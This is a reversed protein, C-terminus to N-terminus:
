TQTTGDACQHRFYDTAGDNGIRRDAFSDAGAPVSKSGAVAATDALL